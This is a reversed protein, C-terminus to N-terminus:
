EDEKGGFSRLYDSPSVGTMEKFIKRFYNSNKYGVMESVEYVKYDGKGLLEKAKDVRYATLYDMFGQGMYNSFINSLYNPTIYIKKSLDNLSIDKDYNEKIYDIIQEVVRSNRKNSRHSFSGYIEGFYRNVWNQIDDLTEKENIEEWPTKENDPIEPQKEGIQYMTVNVLSIMENILMKLYDSHMFEHERINSFMDDLCEQVMAESRMKLGDILTERDYVQLVNSVLQTHVIDSYLIVKGKGLFMKYKLCERSQRYATAIEEISSALSSIGVSISTRFRKGCEKVLQEFKQILNQDELENSDRGAMMLMYADQDKYNMAVSEFGMMEEARKSMSFKIYQRDEETYSELFLDYTDIQLTIVRFNKNFIDVKLFEAREEIERKSRVVGDFLEELFRERLIPLNDKLQQRIKQEQEIKEKEQLCDKGVKLMIERVEKPLAPKLIYDAVGYKMAQKAYEFEEYGTLIVYKTQIGEEKAQRIMEFGDMVPMHIDTLVIDPLLEKIKKIGELGDQATGVVKIGIEEWDIFKNLAEISYSHDDIMLMKLM